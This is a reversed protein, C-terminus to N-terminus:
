KVMLELMCVNFDHSSVCGEGDFWVCDAFLIKEEGHQQFSSFSRVTMAPGGSNLKVIDGVNIERGSFNGSM